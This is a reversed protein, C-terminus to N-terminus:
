PQFGVGLAFLRAGPWEAFKLAGRGVGRLAARKAAGATAKVPAARRASANANDARPLIGSETEGSLIAIAFSEAHDRPLTGGSRWGDVMGTLLIGEDRWRRGRQRSMFFAGGSLL